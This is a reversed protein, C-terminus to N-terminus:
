RLLGLLLVLWAVIWGAAIGLAPWRWFRVHRVLWLGPALGAGVLLNAPVWLLGFMAGIARSFAVDGVAALVAFFAAVALGTAWPTSESPLVPDIELFTAPVGSVPIRDMTGTVPDMFEVPRGLLNAVRSALQRGRRRVLEREEVGDSRADRAFALWERLAAQLEAPM